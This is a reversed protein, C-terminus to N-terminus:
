VLTFVLLCAGVWALVIALMGLDRTFVREPVAGSGRHDGYTLYLHRFLGLLVFPVTYILRETGFNGVTIPNLTYLAYCAATVSATLGIEIDLIRADAASLQVAAKSFCAARRKCLAVFLAVLFVCLLLWPSIRVDCFAAGAVARLVFGVAVTMAGLNLFRRTGFTYVLQLAAYGGCLAPFLWFPSVKIWATAWHTALHWALSLGGALCLTLVVAAAPISVQRAAIPRTKKLPNAADQKRDAIDNLIYGASSVLCFALIAAGLGEAICLAQGKVTDAFVTQNRDFFAFFPAALLLLNKVWQGPRLCQLLHIPRNTYLAEPSDHDSWDASEGFARAAAKRPQAAKHYVRGFRQRSSQEAM